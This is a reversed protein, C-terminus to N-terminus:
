LRFLKAGSENTADLLELEAQPALGQENCPKHGQCIADLMLAQLECNQSLELASLARDNIGEEPSGHQRGGDYRQGRDGDEDRPARLRQHADMELIVPRGLLRRSGLRVFNSVKEEPEDRLLGIRLYPGIVSRSGEYTFDAFFSLIGILIIFRLAIRRDRANGKEAANM